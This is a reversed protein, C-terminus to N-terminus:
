TIKGSFIEELTVNSCFHIKDTSQYLTKPILEKERLSPKLRVKYRHAHGKKNYYSVKGRIGNELMHHRIKFIAMTDSYDFMDIEDEELYSVAVVDKFSHNGDVRESPYFIIENIFNDTTKINEQKHQECRDISMWDLVRYVRRKKGIVELNHNVGNESEFLYCKNYEVELSETSNHTIKIRDEDVTLSDPSIGLPNLGSMGLDWLGQSWIKFKEGAPTRDFIFPQEDNCLLIPIKNKRAFEVAETSSGVVVKDYKIKRKSGM